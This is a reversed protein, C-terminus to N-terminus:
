RAKLLLKERIQQAVILNDIERKAEAIFNNSFEVCQECLLNREKLAGLTLEIQRQTGGTFEKIRELTFSNVEAQNENLLNKTSEQLSEQSRKFIGTLLCCEILEMPENNVVM